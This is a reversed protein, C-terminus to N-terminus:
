YQSLQLALMIYSFVSLDNGGLQDLLTIVCGWLCFFDCLNDMFKYLVYLLGKKNWLYSFVFMFVSSVCFLTVYMYFYWQRRPTVFPGGERASISIMMIIQSIVIIICIIKGTHYLYNCLEKEVNDKHKQRSSIWFNKIKELNMYAEMLFLAYFYTNREIM